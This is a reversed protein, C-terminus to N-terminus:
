AKSELGDLQLVHTQPHQQVPVASKFQHRRQGRVGVAIVCHRIEQLTVAGANERHHDTDTVGRGSLLHRLSVTRLSAETLVAATLSETSPSGTVKRDV